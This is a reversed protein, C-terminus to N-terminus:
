KWQMFISFLVQRNFFTYKGIDIFGVKKERKGEGAGKM